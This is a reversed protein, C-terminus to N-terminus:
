LSILKRSFLLAFKFSIGEIFSINGMFLINWLFSNKDMEPNIVAKITIHVM